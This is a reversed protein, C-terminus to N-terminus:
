AYAIRIMEMLRRAAPSQEGIKRWLLAVRREPVPDTLKIARVHPMNGIAGLQMVTALATDRIVALIPELANMELVICPQIGARSFYADLYARTGFEPTLLVLSLEALRQMPVSKLPKWPHRGGVVLVLTDRYLPMSEIQPDDSDAYGIALDLVGSVLEREMVERSLQRAVIHVGPYKESFDAFVSPLRSNGFSHFVAVRLEGRMLCQLEHVAAVGASAARLINTCHILFLEGAATPEIRRGLRHLLRSGLEEELQQVQHSLTSQTVHLMEAARSFSKAACVTEFYRLHRLEM